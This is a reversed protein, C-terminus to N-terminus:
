GGNGPANNTPGALKGVTITVRDGPKATTGADPSQAVVIGDQAPDTVDTEKVQVKFGAQELTAQASAADQGRVDPVGSLQGNSVFV